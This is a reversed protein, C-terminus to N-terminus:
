AGAVGPCRGLRSGFSAVPMPMLFAQNDYINQSM